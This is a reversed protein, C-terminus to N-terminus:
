KVIKWMGTLLCLMAVASRRFIIHHNEGEAWTCARQRRQQQTCVYLLLFPLGWCIEVRQIGNRLFLLAFVVAAASCINSNGTQKDGPCTLASTVIPARMYTIAACEIHTHTHNGIRRAGIFATRFKVAAPFKLGSGRNARWILKHMQRLPVRRKRCWKRRNPDFMQNCFRAAFWLSIWLQNKDRSFSKLIVVFTEKLTM